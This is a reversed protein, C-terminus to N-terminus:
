KSAFGLGLSCLDLQQLCLVSSKLGPKLRHLGVEHLLLFHERLIEKGDELLKLLLHWVAGTSHM